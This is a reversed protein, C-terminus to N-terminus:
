HVMSTLVIHHSQHRAAVQPARRLRTAAQVMRFWLDAPEIRTLVKAGSTVCTTDVQQGNTIRTVVVKFIEHVRNQYFSKVLINFQVNHIPSQILLHM